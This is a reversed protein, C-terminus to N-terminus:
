IAAKIMYYAFPLVLWLIFAAISVKNIKEAATPKSDRYVYYLVAGIIPILFAALLEGANAERDTQATSPPVAGEAPCGCFLCAKAADDIQKGCKRCFAM